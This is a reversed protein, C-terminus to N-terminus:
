GYIPTALSSCELRQELSPNNNKLYESISGFPARELLLGDETLAKFGIIHKHPGIAQLIRAELSLLALAKEDSPIHPYKLVTSEDIFGIFSNTGATLCGTVDGPCYTTLYIETTMPRTRTVKRALM